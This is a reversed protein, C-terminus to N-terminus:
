LQDRCRDFEDIKGELYIRLKKALASRKADTSIAVIFGKTKLLSMFTVDCLDKVDVVNVPIGARNADAKIRRNVKPDNTASVVLGAGKVDASCYSRHILRIKRRDALRQVDPLVEPAIVKIRAETKLLVKIKHLGVQGAGIVLIKKKRTDFGLPLYRM